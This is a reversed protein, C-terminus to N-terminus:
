SEPEGGLSFVTTIGYAAYTSLDAPGNVHGHTNILGPIIFKGELHVVDAGAPVTVARAPGAAIVRGDRVIVTANSIPSVDRGDYLTAGTFARVSGHQASAGTLAVLSATIIRRM